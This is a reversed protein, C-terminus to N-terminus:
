RTVETALLARASRTVALEKMPDGHVAHWERWLRLAEAGALCAARVANLKAMERALVPLQEAQKPYTSLEHEFDLAMALLMGAHDM